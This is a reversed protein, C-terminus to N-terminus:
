KRDICIIPTKRYQERNTELRGFDPPSSLPSLLHRDRSQAMAVATLGQTNIGTVTSRKRRQLTPFAKVAMTSREEYEFRCYSKNRFRSTDAIERPGHVTTFVRQVQSFRGTIKTHGHKLTSSTIPWLENDAEVTRHESARSVNRTRHPSLLLIYNLPCKAIVHLM